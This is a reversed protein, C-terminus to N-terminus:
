RRRFVARVGRAADLRISCAGTGRCAGAWGAFRSGRRPRARLVIRAGQDFDRACASPCSIGAPTSVVSGAGGSRRVVQVRLLVQRAFRAAVVKATDMALECDERGRCAGGWGVFRSGPAADALLTLTTGQDWAISCSAPCDIGPRDSRVTGGGTSGALSVSLGQQPRDLHTLWESDQVDWWTGMHGYYDDRGFDLVSAALGTRLFPYM